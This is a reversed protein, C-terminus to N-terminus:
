FSFYSSASRVIAYASFEMEFESTALDAELDFSPGKTSDYGDVNSSDTKYVQLKNGFFELPSAHLKMSLQTESFSMKVFIRTGFLNLAGAMEFGAPIEMPPELQDITVDQTAYSMYAFCADGIGVVCLDHATYYSQCCSTVEQKTM